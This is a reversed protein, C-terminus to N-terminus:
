WAGLKGVPAQAEDSPKTGQTTTALSSYVFALFVGLQIRPMNRHLLGLFALRQITLFLAFSGM